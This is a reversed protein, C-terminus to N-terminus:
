VRRLPTEIHVTSKCGTSMGALLQRMSAFLILPFLHVTFVIELDPLYVATGLEGVAAVTVSIGFM